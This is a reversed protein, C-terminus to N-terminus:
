LIRELALAFTKMIDHSNVLKEYKKLMRTWITKKFIGTTIISEYYSDIMDKYDKDAKNIITQEDDAYRM